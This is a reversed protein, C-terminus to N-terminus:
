EGPPAVLVIKLVLGKVVSAQNNRITEGTTAELDKIGTRLIFAETGIFVKRSVQLLYGAGALTSFGVNIFSSRTSDGSNVAVRSTPTYFYNGAGIGGRVYLNAKRFPFVYLYSMLYERSNNPLSNSRNRDNFITRETWVGPGVVALFTHNFRYGVMAEVIFGPISAKEGCPICLGNAWGYGTTIGISFGRETHTLDQAPAANVLFSCLFHVLIFRFM